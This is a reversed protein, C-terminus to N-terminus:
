GVPANSESSTAGSASTTTAIDAATAHPLACGQESCRGTLRLRNRAFLHYGWDLVQRIGPVRTMPMLWGFGIATYLHRFVDVGRIITGDPLRGHIEAMLQDHSLGFTEPHLDPANLPTFQIRKLRDQRRLLEIERRCLPCSQDYFVEVDRGFPLVRRNLVSSDAHDHM